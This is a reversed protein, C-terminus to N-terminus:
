LGEGATITLDQKKGERVISLRVAQGATVQATQRLVDAVKRVERDQVTEITDGVKLGAKAAPGDPLVSGVAVKADAEMLEIGLFGRPAQEPNAKAGSLAGLLKMLGGIMELGGQGGRGGIPLPPPPKFALQTWAMKPRTFDFEMRYHALLTYGIIGHLEAGALGLGNMGELQFPTDVRVKMKTQVAGGELEFRDVVAWGKNVELGLNKGVSTAVFVLPAGTDIIFNFPGKGNIKARVLVHQTDTLRYPIQYTTLAPKKTDSKKEGAWVPALFCLVLPALGRWALRM